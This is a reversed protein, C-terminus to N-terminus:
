GLMVQNPDRTPFMIKIPLKENVKKLVPRAKLQIWLTTFPVGRDAGWTRQAYM